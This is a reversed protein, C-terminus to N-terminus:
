DRTVYPDAEHMRDSVQEILPDKAPARRAQRQQQTSANSCRKSARDAAAEIGEIARRGRATLGLENERRDAPARRRRVLRDREPEDAASRMTSREFQIQRGIVNQSTPGLADLLLLMGAARVSLKSGTLEQGFLEIARTSVTGLLFCVHNGLVEPISVEPSTPATAASVAGTRNTKMAVGHERRNSSNSRIRFGIM